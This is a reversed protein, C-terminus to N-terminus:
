LHNTKRSTHCITHFRMSWLELCEVAPASWWLNAHRPDPRHCAIQLPSLPVSSSQVPGHPDKKAEKEKSIGGPGQLFEVFGVGAQSSKESKGLKGGIVPTM